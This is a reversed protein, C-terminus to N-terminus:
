PLKITGADIEDKVKELSMAINERTYDQDRLGLIILDILKKLSDLSVKNTDSQRFPKKRVHKKVMYLIAVTQLLMAM